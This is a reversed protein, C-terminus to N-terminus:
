KRSKGHCFFWAAGNGGPSRFKQELQGIYAANAYGTVGFDPSHVRVYAAQVGNMQLINKGSGDPKRKYLIAEGM